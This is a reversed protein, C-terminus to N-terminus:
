VRSFVLQNKDRLYPVLLTWARYSVIGARLHVPDSTDRYRTQIVDFRRELARLNETEYEIDVGDLLRVAIEYSAYEIDQPISTDTGRPFQTLQTSLTKSGKFNLRDIASTAQRLASTKRTTSSNIWADSNLRDLFYLDGDVVTGYFVLHLEAALQSITVTHSVSETYIAM